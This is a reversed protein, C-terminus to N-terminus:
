ILSYSLLLLSLSSVGGSKGAKAGSNANALLAAAAAAAKAIKLDTIAKAAIVGADADNHGDMIASVNSRKKSLKSAM